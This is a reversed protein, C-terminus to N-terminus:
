VWQKLSFLKDTIPIKGEERQTFPKALGLYLEEQGLDMGLYFLRGLLRGYKEVRNKPDIKIQVDKGEVKGKLWDRAAEGGANLELTDIDLFRMPFDFDRFDTRLTVTDGDHVKVVTAYFDNEIQEHPSTFRMEELQTNTLEPYNKYDHEEMM